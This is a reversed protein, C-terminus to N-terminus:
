LVGWWPAAIVGPAVVRIGPDNSLLLGRKTSAYRDRFTRLHRAESKGVTAAAKVEVPLLGGNEELVFDVEQGSALRWHYCARGPANGKWVAVDSVVLNELHFGTPASERAAALAFAPDVMYLKPAKIVRQSSNTSYPPILDIMYTRSLADIWRRITTLPIGLDGALGSVNLEQGTWAAVIRFFSEFREAVDIAIVERIDRQVFATVYDNLLRM